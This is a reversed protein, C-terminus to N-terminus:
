SSRRCRSRSSARSPPATSAAAPRRPHVVAGAHAPIGQLHLGERRDSRALKKEILQVVIEDPVLQGSEYLGIIKRGLPTGAKIEDDLMPGTAVYELGYKRALAAGQSGRGSGPYGFVVVNFLHKALEDRVIVRIDATVKEIPQNGNVRQYNGKERYFDLM